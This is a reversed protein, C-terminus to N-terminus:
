AMVAPPRYDESGNLSTMEVNKSTESQPVAQFGLYPAQHRMELALIAWAFAAVLVLSSGVGWECDHERCTNTGFFLFILLQLITALYAVRISSKWWGVSSKGTILSFWLICISFLGAASAALHLGRAVLPAEHDEDYQNCYPYGAMASQPPSYVWLGYHLDFEAGYAGVEIPASAFYCSFGIFFNGLLGALTAMSGVVLLQIVHRRRRANKVNKFKYDQEMDRSSNMSAPASRSEHSPQILTLVRDKKKVPTNHEDDFSDENDAGSLDEEDSPATAVSPVAEGESGDEDSSEDTDDQLPQFAEQNETNMSENEDVADGAQESALAEEAAQVLSVEQYAEKWLRGGQQSSTQSTALSRSDMTQAMMMDFADQGTVTSQTNLSSQAQVPPEHVTSFVPDPSPLGVIKDSDESGKRAMETEDVSSEKRALETTDVSRIEPERALETEDPIFTPPPTAEDIDVDMPTPEEAIVPEDETALESTAEKEKSTTEEKIDVPRSEAEESDAQEATQNEEILMPEPKVEENTPTDLSEMVDRTEAATPADPEEAQPKEEPVNDSLIAESKARIERAKIMWEPVPKETEQIAPKNEIPVAPKKQEDNENILSTTSEKHSRSPTPEEHVPTPQTTSQEVHATLPHELETGLTSVTNDEPVENVVVEPGASPATEDVPAVADAGKKGELQAIREQVTPM